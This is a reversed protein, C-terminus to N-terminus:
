ALYFLPWLFLWVIDVLHWYLACAELQHTEKARFTLAGRHALVIVGVTVHVAHIGTALYYLTWFSPLGATQHTAFFAGHGGPFIGESFHKSYEFMKIVVFVIGLLSTSWTLLAAARRRGARLAEVALAVLTSSALLVGTNISGLIKTNEHVGEHFAAPWHARDGAVLALVATFLLVESALFAGIAVKVAQARQDVSAFHDHTEDSM